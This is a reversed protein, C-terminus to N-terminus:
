PFSRKLAEDIGRKVLVSVMRIRYDLDSGTNNVAFASAHNMAMIAATKIAEQDSVSKGELSKSVQVLLLPSSSIAGIVIRATKIFGGSDIRIFVGVSAIPYDIASRYALRKYASGAGRDSVPIRIETMLEDPDLSLPQEGTATFLDNLLLTREGGKKRLMVEADLATLIPAGDSQYTARCRDSGEKAYCIKGGAKHCAQRGSRWFASQNYYLCRSDQCLNGGITGRHHQVSPAGVSELARILGPFHKRIIDSRTIQALSTRSGIKVIDREQRIYNLESLSKLSMLYKPALLRKKMRVLLDTGGALIRCDGKHTHLIELAEDTERPEIYEFEPLRM